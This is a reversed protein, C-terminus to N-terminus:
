LNLKGYFGKKVGPYVLDFLKLVYVLDVSLSDEVDQAKTPGVRLTTKYTPSFYKNISDSQAGNAEYKRKGM